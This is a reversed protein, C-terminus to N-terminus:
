FTAGAREADIRAHHVAFFEALSEPTIDAQTRFFDAASEERGTALSRLRGNGIYVFLEPLVEAGNQVEALKVLWAVPQGALATRRADETLLWAVLAAITVGPNILAGTLGNRIAILMKIEEM